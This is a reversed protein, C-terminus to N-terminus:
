VFDCWVAQNGPGDRFTTQWIKLSL